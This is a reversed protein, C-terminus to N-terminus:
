GRFYDLETSLDIYPHSAKMQECKQFFSIRFKRHAESNVNFPKHSAANQIEKIKNNLSIAEESFCCETLREFVYDIALDNPHVLDADYFRYDRLDDIVLEYAPFYYVNEHTNVIEHVSQILVSKSLNNEVVGDRIYRVPSVTFVINIGANIEKLKSILKTYEETITGPTLLEKIFKQQPIKHCNGVSIKEEKLTYSFASGFTIFLWKVKKLDAHAHSISSNIKSLCNIKDPDSFRSHHEWSNWCENAFFLEKETFLIGDVYRQLSKVLALPNYLIGHPNMNVNFKLKQMREGINESFCSGVFMLSDCYDIKDPFTSLPFELHFNM